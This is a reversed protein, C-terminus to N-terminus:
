LTNILLLLPIIYFFFIYRLGLLMVGQKPGIVGTGETGRVM